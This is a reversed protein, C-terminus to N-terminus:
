IPFIIGKLNVTLKILVKDNQLYLQTKFSHIINIVSYPLYNKQKELCHDM